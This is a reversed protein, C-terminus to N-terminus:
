VKAHELVHWLTIVDFQKELHDDLSSAIQKGIKQIAINRANENPEMGSVEWGQKKCTVLFDGTGCGIDLVRRPKTFRKNLLRVKQKLTFSRVTHYLREVITKKSDTHSIYADSEYYSTLKHDEPRPNTILLENLPDKYITFTKGSVTHDKCTIFPEIRANKIPSHPIHKM